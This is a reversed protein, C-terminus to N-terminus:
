KYGTKRSVGFRECQASVNAGDVSALGVFERRLSVRDCEKWGM